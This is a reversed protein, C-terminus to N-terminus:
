HEHRVELESRLRGMGRDLHERVTSVSIGLVNAVERQSMAYGHALVVVARQQVSLRHLAASLEPAPQTEPPSEPPAAPFGSSPVVAFYKAAATQGVRYLYGVPNEMPQLRSWHEWAWSLADLAAERGVQPGYSAVLARRLRPEVSVVFVAFEADRDPFEADRDPEAAGM